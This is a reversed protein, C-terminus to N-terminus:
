ELTETKIATCGEGATVLFVRMNNQGSLATITESLSVEQGLASFGTSRLESCPMPLNVTLTYAAKCGTSSPYFEALAIGTTGDTSVTMAVSFSNNDPPSVPRRLTVRTEATVGLYTSVQQIRAACTLAGLGVAAKTIENVSTKEPAGTKSSTENQSFAPAALIVLAIWFGVVARFLVIISNGLKLAM